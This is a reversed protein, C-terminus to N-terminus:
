CDKAHKRTARDGLLLRAEQEMQNHDESNDVYYKKMQLVANERDSTYGNWGGKGDGDADPSCQHSTAAQTQMSDFSVSM